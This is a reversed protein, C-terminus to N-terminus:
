AGRAKLAIELVEKGTRVDNECATKDRVHELFTSLQARYTTDQEVDFSETWSAGEADLSVSGEVLNGGLVGSRGTIEIDRRESRRYYDLHVSGITGDAHEFLIEAVDNADIDLHSVQGVSSVIRDVDGFLWRAYDLEHILDLVVGGGTETSSSYSDRYDREPRWDPLYSGAHIRYSYSPGISQAALEDRITQIVPHYRLNCGMCTVLGRREIEDILVEIEDLTHSLPKEIFLDCNARACRLATEVHRFTPNTIFAVDPEEGLARDLDDFETISNLGTPEENTRYAIIEIPDEREELLRAHRRGISGLGAFLVRM